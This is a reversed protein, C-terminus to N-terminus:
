VQPSSVLVQTVHPINPKKFRCKAAVNLFLISLAFMVVRSSYELLKDECVNLVVEFKAALIDTLCFIKVSSM